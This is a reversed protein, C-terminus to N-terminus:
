PGAHRCVRLDMDDPRQAKFQIVVSQLPRRGIVEVQRFIIEIVAELVEFRLIRPGIEIHGTIALLRVAAEVKSGDLSVDVQDESFLAGADRILPQSGM